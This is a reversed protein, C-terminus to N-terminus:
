RGDRRAVKFDRIVPGVTVGEGHPTPPTLSFREFLFSM